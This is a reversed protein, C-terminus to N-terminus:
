RETNKNKNILNENTIRRIITKTFVQSGEYNLHMNDCFWKSDHMDLYYDWFPVSHKSCLDIIPQLDAISSAGYKPSAIVVLQVGDAQTEEILKEFYKLKLSDNNRIPKEKVEAAVYNRHTPQYFSYNVMGHRLFDGLLVFTKSNYRYMQSNMKLPESCDVDSFVTRIGPEKYFMRLGSLYRRNNDDNAYEIIDFSPEIDYLLVKPKNEKPIIHYRGYMLVIGNGKNGVNIANIGLSDSLLQDDYHCVCRSSGMAMLDFRGQKFVGMARATEGSHAHKVMYNCAYGYVMDVVAVFAFFLLINILFRKM